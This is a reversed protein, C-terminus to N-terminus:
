GGVGGGVCWWACVCVRGRQLRHMLFQVFRIMVTTVGGNGRSLFRQALNLGQQLRPHALRCRRLLRARCARRGPGRRCRLLALSAGDARRHAIFVRRYNSGGQVSSANEQCSTPHCLFTYLTHLDSQVPVPLCKSGRIPKTCGPASKPCHGGAADRQADRAGRPRAPRAACVSPRLQM